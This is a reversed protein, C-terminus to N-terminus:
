ESNLWRKWIGSNKCKQCHHLDDEDPKYTEIEDENAVKFMILDEFKNINNKLKRLFEDNVNTSLQFHHHKNSDDPGILTSNPFHKIRKQAASKNAACIWIHVEHLKQPQAPSLQITSSNDNIEPRNRSLDM